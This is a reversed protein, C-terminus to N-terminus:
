LRWFRVGKIGNHIDGRAFIALGLRQAEQYIDEKGAQVDLCPIFISHGKPFERWDVEYHVGEIKM